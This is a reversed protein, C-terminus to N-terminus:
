PRVDSLKVGRRYPNFKWVPDADAKAPIKAELGVAWYCANVMLRRFAANDFDSGGAMAGGMTTTFVRGKVGVPRAYTWAVPHMPSNKDVERNLRKVFEPPAPPDDPRMGRLVEGLLLPTCGDPLPLKTEYVDTPGWIEGDDIGKLIPHAGAEPAFKGLTSQKGHGGWHNVWTQGLVQRGFGGPFDDKKYNWGYKAFPSPSDAPYAFAHTATRLGIVPKGSDLYDVIFKMQADPLCRFRTFMVLLDAQRLTELGPVNDKRGHDIAGTRPDTSFLVTCDFGHREALIHALLPMSEESRYEDDGAILVIRRGNGAGSKGQFLAHNEPRDPPEAASVSAVFAIAAVLSARILMFNM